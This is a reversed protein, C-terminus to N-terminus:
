SFVTFAGAHTSIHFRDLPLQYLAKCAGCATVWQELGHYPEGDTTKIVKGAIFQLVNAPMDLLTLREEQAVIAAPVDNQMRRNQPVTEQLFAGTQSLIVAHHYSNAPSPPYFVGSRGARLRGTQASIAPCTNTGVRNWSNCCCVLEVLM